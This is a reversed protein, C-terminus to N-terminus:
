VDLLQLYHTPGAPCHKLLSHSLNFVLIASRSDTFGLSMPPAPGEVGQSM